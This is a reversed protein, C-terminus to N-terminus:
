EPVIRKVTRANRDGEPDNEPRSSPAAEQREHSDLILRYAAALARVEEEPTAGPRSRYSIRASDM